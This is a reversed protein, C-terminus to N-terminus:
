ELERGLVQPIEEVLDRKEAAGRDSQPDRVRSRRGNPRGLIDVHDDLDCGSRLEV